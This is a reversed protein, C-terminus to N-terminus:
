SSYNLQLVLHLISKWKSVRLRVAGRVQAMLEAVDLEETRRKSGARAHFFGVRETQPQLVISWGLEEFFEKLAFRDYPEYNGPVKAREPVTDPAVEHYKGCVEEVIHLLRTSTFLIPYESGECDIKM